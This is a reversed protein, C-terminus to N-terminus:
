GINNRKIGGMVTLPISVCKLIREVGDVGLFDANWKKTRTPFVPGVNVYSAGAKEAAVAEDVSHSSAGIIFDPALRRAEVVPLDDQGLHVGDLLLYDDQPSTGGRFACRGFCDAVAVQNEERWKKRALSYLTEDPEAWQLGV